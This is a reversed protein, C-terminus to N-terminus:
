ESAGTAFPDFLPQPDPIAPVVDSTEPPSSAYRRARLM